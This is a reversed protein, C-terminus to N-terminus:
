ARPKGGSHQRRRYFQIIEEATERSLREFRALCQAIEGPPSLRRSARASLIAKVTSWSLEVAKALILLTEARDQKMAQEVFALPLNCMWALAAAVDELRGASAIAALESETVAKLKHRPELPPGAAQHPPHLADARIYAAVEAVVQRVERKAQPHAAELKIRVAHSAKALLRMFLAPPIEPRSGVREALTDDGDSRGVLMAFGTNSFRAGRNEVTSLVVQRDGREVLVDTISESLARRRSIALLHDRGKQKANEVLTSDDLRESQSLVPGAVEIEDEFALKRIINPPANRIPALRVALLARAALEIEVTLRILVDDFLAIEQDNLVAARVLFLDTIRRLMKDRRSPSGNAIADEVQNLLTLEPTM